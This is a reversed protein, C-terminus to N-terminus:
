AYTSFGKRRRHRTGLKDLESNQEHLPECVTTSEHVYQGGELLLFAYVSSCNKEQMMDTLMSSIDQM